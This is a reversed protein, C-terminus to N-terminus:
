RVLWKGRDNDSMKDQAQLKEVMKLYESKTENADSPQNRQFRNKFRKSGAARRLQPDLIGSSGSGTVHSIKAVSEKPISQKQKVPVDEVLEKPTMQYTAKLTAELIEADSHHRRRSSDASTSSPSAKGDVQVREYVGAPPNHYPDELGETYETPRWIRGDGRDSSNRSGTIRGEERYVYPREEESHSGHSRGHSREERSYDERSRKRRHKVSASLDLGPTEGSRKERQRRNQQQAEALRFQEMFSGDNVVKPGIDRYSAENSEGSLFYEVPKGDFLESEDRNSHHTNM